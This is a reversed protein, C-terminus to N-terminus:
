QASDLAKVARTRQCPSETTAATEFENPGKRLTTSREGFTNMKMSTYSASIVSVLHAGLLPSGQMSLEQLGRWLLPDGGSSSSFVSEDLCVRPRHLDQSPARVPEKVNEKAKQARCGKKKKTFHKRKPRAAPSSIAAQGDDGDSSGERDEGGVGEQAVMRMSRHLGLSSLTQLSLRTRNALDMRTTKRLLCGFMVWM